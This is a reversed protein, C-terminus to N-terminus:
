TFHVSNTVTSSIKQFNKTDSKDIKIVNEVNGYRWENRRIITLANSGVINNAVTSTETYQTLAM